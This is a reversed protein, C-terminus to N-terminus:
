PLTEVVAKEPLKDAAAPRSYDTVEVTFYERDISYCVPVLLLVLVTAVALGFCMSVAMPILLQAQFSSELLIPLLGAITTISTLLVPRFRRRGASTLATRLDDGEAIRANIFDVLVISDNVVVGTLAVMGLVSFLTLPLDMLYHGWIAGIAGFPIIFLIILPQRYSRFEVTLVVFMAALAIGFGVFLSNVSERQQEQQGEWRIQVGENRALLAPLFGTKLQSVVRFANGAAEDVDASITISRMQDIRNIEAFSRQVRVEAVENLPRELADDGRIRIDDLNSLARREDPPYRVMLKVEHRGRQLRMVEEGFYSARVTEAIEALPVGMAQANEKVRLQFEWKGPRADDAIDFVEPYTRLENKVSEVARELTDMDRADALLKFEIPKGGPGFAVSGFTLSDAGAIERTEARWADVIQQSTVNRRSTEVLEVYVTGVQSGSQLGNPGNATQASGVQGVARHSLLVVPEHPLSFRQNIREIADAIRATAADTIREPTGNPFTVTAQLTNSDLKPFFVWPTLGSQVAGISAIFAAVATAIVLARHKLSWQLVPLYLREAIFHLGSGTVRNLWGTPVELRRLPYAFQERVFAFAIAGAGITWRFPFPMRGALLATRQLATLHDRHALHCPLIFMAELLSIILTAIVAMPLVAFFKGMTGTVFMMPMFAIVTTTVSTTVSPLVEYAGDVAATALDKGQQRHAYVNEGIVIADDVVIGLAMVFAFMSLMNLTEGCYLLVACAGLVSIPIGMAVWFALRLELFVALVLFVLLLGQLGNKRLLELRDRVNVSRDGWVEFSYGSPLQKQEVYERVEETMALLDERASANVSVVLGAQGNIRSIATSDAFGDRVVGLEGVTIVAGDLRTILPITEIGEGTVYKNKGRVLVEESDTRINGGPLEVNERRVIRAVRQLTLGHKRLADEAIEIDIQYPRGGEISTQSVSKLLLIEDRVQETISRLRNEADVSDVRPATVGVKIAPRRMTIQEVEPDEALVPFSPIR